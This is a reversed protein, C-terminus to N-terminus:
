SRGSCTETDQNRTDVELCGFGKNLTSRRLTNRPRDGSTGEPISEPMRVSDAFVALLLRGSHNPPMPSVATAQRELPRMPRPSQSANHIQTTRLFISARRRSQETCPQCSQPTNRRQPPERLRGSVALLIALHRTGTRQRKATQKSNTTPRSSQQDSLPSNYVLNCRDSKFCESKM